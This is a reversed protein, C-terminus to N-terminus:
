SRLRRRFRKHLTERGRLRHEQSGSVLRRALNTIPKEVYAYVGVAIPISIIVCLAAVLERPVSYEGLGILALTFVHSLYLSYSANGLNVAPQALRSNFLPEAVVAGAIIFIAPVGFALTRPLEPRFTIAILGIAIACIGLWSPFRPAQHRLAAIAMGAVFELPMLSTFKQLPGEVPLLRLAAMCVFIATLAGIRAPLTMRILSAFLVYFYM